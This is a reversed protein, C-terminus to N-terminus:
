NSRKRRMAGLAGLAIGFLALSAPEPVTGDGTQRAASTWINAWLNRNNANTWGNGDDWFNIDTAILVDSSRGAGADFVGLITRGADDTALVEFDSPASTVVSHDAGIFGTVVNPSTVWESSGVTVHGTDDSYSGSHAIGWNSLIANAPATWPADTWDTQIFLFGGQVNVFNKLATIEAASPASNLLGIYVADVGSLFSANMTSTSVLTDGQNVLYQRAGSIYSGAFGYSEMSGDYYGVTMAQSETALLALSAAVITLKLKTM